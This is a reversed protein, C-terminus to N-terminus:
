IAAESKADFFRLGTPNLGLRIKQQPKVKITPEVSAVMAGGGAKVDLIIESGLQEAVEVIADFSCDQADAGNAMHLDEPRIGLTAAKGKHPGMRAAINDPVRIKMTPSTAYLVGGIDEITTEAFNMAPSGIFG